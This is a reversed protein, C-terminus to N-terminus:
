AKKRSAATDGGLAANRAKSELMEVTVLTSVAISLTSGSPHETADLVWNQRTQVLRQPSVERTVLAKNGKEKLQLRLRQRRVTALAVTDLLPVDDTPAHAVDVVIRKQVESARHGEGELLAAIRSEISQVSAALPSKPPLAGLHQWAALLAHLEPTPLWARAAKYRAGKSTKPAPDAAFRYGGAKRDFVIPAHLRDRLHTLDRKLTAWSVGLRKLLAEKTMLGNAHLAQDIQLFRDNMSM